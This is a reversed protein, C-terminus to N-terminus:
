DSWREKWRTDWERIKFLTLGWYDSHIPLDWETEGETRHHFTVCSCANLWWHSHFSSEMLTILSPRAKTNLFPSEHTLISSPPNKSCTDKKCTHIWPMKVGVWGQWGSWRKKIWVALWEEGALIVFDSGPIKKEGGVIQQIRYQGPIMPFSLPTLDCDTMTVGCPRTSWLGIPQALHVPQLKSYFDGEM